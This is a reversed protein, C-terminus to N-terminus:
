EKGYIDEAFDASEPLQQVVQDLIAKAEKAWRRLMAAEEKAHQSNQRQRGHEDKNRAANKADQRFGIVATALASVFMDSSTDTMPVAVRVFRIREQKKRSPTIIAM